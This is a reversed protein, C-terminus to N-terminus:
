NTASKLPNHGIDFCKTLLKFLIKSFFQGKRCGFNMEKNTPIKGIRVIM